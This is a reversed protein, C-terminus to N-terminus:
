LPKRDISSSLINYFFYLTYVCIGFILFFSKTLVLFNLPSNFRPNVITIFDVNGGKKGWITFWVEFNWMIEYFSWLCILMVIIFFFKMVKKNLKFFLKELWELIFCWSLFGLFGILTLPKLYLIPFFPFILPIEDKIYREGFSNESPYKIKYFIFISLIILFCLLSLLLWFNKILKEKIM